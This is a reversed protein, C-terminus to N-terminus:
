QFNALFILKSTKQHKKRFIKHKWYVTASKFCNPTRAYSLKPLCFFFFFKCVPVLDFIIFFFIWNKPKSTQPRSNNLRKRAKQSLPQWRPLRHLLWWFASWLFLCHSFTTKGCSKYTTSCQVLLGIAATEFRIPLCSKPVAHKLYDGNQHSKGLSGRQCRKLWFARLCNFKFFLCFQQWLIKGWDWNQM